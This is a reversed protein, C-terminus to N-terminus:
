DATSIPIASFNLAGSFYARGIMQGSSDGMETRVVRYLGRKFLDLYKQYYLANEPVHFAPDDPSIYGTPQKSMIQTLRPGFDTLATIMSTSFRDPDPKNKDIYWGFEERVKINENAFNKLWTALIMSLFFQRGFAFSEGKNLEDEIIPIIVERFVETALSNMPHTNHDMIELGDKTRFMCEDAKVDMDCVAKMEYGVVISAELYSGALFDRVAQSLPEDGWSKKPVWVNARSASVTVTHFSRIPLMTTGFIARARRYLEQWYSRGSSCDPHLLSASLVKLKYDFALMDHGLRTGSLAEPLLRTSDYPSLNVWQQEVGVSLSEWFYDMVKRQENLYEPSGVDFGSHGTDILFELTKADESIGLGKILVPIFPRSPELLEVGPSSEITESALVPTSIAGVTAGFTDDDNTNTWLGLLALKLGEVTQQLRLPHPAGNTKFIPQGDTPLALLAAFQEEKWNCKSLILPIVYAKKQKSRKLATKMEVNRCYGSKLFAESVLFLVLNSSELNKQITEDWEQGALIMRDHWASVYGESELTRFTLMLLDKLAEDQHSYSIFVKKRKIPRQLTHTQQQM